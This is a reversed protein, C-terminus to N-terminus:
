IIFFTKVKFFCWEVFSNNNVSSTSKKNKVMTTFLSLHKQHDKIKTDVQKRYSEEIVKKKKLFNKKLLKKQNEYQTVLQKLNKQKDIEFFLFDQKILDQMQKLTEKTFKEVIDNNSVNNIIEFDFSEVKNSESHSKEEFLTMTDYSPPPSPPPATASITAVVVAKENHNTELM